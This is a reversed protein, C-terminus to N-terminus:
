FIALSQAAAGACRCLASEQIPQWTNRRLSQALGRVLPAARSLIESIKRGLKGIFKLMIGCGQILKFELELTIIQGVAPSMFVYSIEYDMENTQGTTTAQKV